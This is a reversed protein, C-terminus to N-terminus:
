VYFGPNMLGTTEDLGFILNMNQIAQGAAGKVLNDLCSVIILRNLRKDIKIGIHIFNSGAVYKIQPLSGKKHIVVFPQDKYYQKYIEIIDEEEYSKFVEKLPAYITALIGRKIPLLHPTFSLKIERNGLKSLKEEIESTHRHNALGYAKFDDSVESFSFALSEKRGAGSVGSKADIYINNDDIIEKEIVPALALISCTTYCGPNAIFLSKKIDEKNLEPMGFIAKDNLKPSNHKTEYWSEYTNIDDYRFDGSLDIIKLKGDYMNPILKSSVGHPLATFVLDCTAKIKEFDVEELSVDLVGKYNPYIDSFLKGAYSNSAIYKIEVEPHGVLLRTLELGGYGTTGIIGVKIM